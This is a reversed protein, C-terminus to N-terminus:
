DRREIPGSSVDEIVSLLDDDSTAALSPAAGARRGGRLPSLAAAGIVAVALMAPWPLQRVDVGGMVSVQATTENGFADVATVDLTQPWPPLQARLEFSGSADPAVAPGDAIRVSAGSESSGGITAEFPWPPNLLPAEVSLQPATVDFVAVGEALSSVDGSGDLVAVSVTWATAPSGDFSTVNAASM